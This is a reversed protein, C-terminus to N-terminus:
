AVAQSSVTELIKRGREDIAIPEGCISGGKTYAWVVSGSPNEGTTEIVDTHWGQPTAYDFTLGKAKLEEVTVIKVM